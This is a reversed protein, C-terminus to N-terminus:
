HMDKTIIQSPCLNPPPYFITLDICTVTTGPRNRIPDYVYYGNFSLFKARILPGNEGEARVYFYNQQGMISM